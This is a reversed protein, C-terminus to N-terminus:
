RDSCDRRLAQLTEAAADMDQRRKARRAAAEADGGWQEINWDEDVHAATWAEDATIEGEALALALIASGTLSTVTHLAALEFVDAYRKLSASFAAITERPQDAHMVGEVLVFRTGLAAHAWDIMPDWHEGQREVLGEPADARYCLLDTAAFRVIDEAVAQRENAVGDLATNALRTLPMRAPDIESEQAHWEAALSEALARSPVALVKKAPTRLLRGDLAVGYGEAHEAVTAETYFRKPLPRKMQEQARRIPDAETPHDTPERM